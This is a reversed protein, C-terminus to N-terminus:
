VMSVGHTPSDAREPPPTSPPTSVRAQVITQPPPVDVYSDGGNREASSSSPIMPARFWAKAQEESDFVAQNKASKAFIGEGSKRPSIEKKM